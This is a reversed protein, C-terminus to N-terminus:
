RVGGQQAVLKKMNDLLMESTVLLHPRAANATSATQHMQTQPSAAQEAAMTEMVKVRFQEISTGDDIFTNVFEPKLAPCHRRMVDFTERIAKSREREARAAQERIASLEVATKDPPPAKETGAGATMTEEMIPEKPAPVEARPKTALDTKGDIPIGSLDIRGLQASLFGAGPDAPVCATSLEIPEWDVALYSKIKSDDPTIDQLRHVVVGASVNRVIGDLVDQFVAEAKERKSFRVIAKLKGDEIWGRNVVGLQEHSSYAMHNDLLPAGAKFRDLRVAAPKMSLQLKYKEGTWWDYRDMSIGSNAVCEVTRDEANVSDPTM